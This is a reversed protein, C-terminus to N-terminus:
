QNLGVVFKGDALEISNKAQNKNVKLSYNTGLYPLTTNEKFFPKNNTTYNRQIGKTEKFIWGAKDLVIRQIELKVKDLPARVTIMDADVILESTKIRGTKIICYSIITTGYKVKDQQRIM